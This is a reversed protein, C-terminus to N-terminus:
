EAEKLFSVESPAAPVGCNFIPATDTWFIQEPGLVRVADYGLRTLAASLSLARRGSKCYVVIPAHPDEPLVAAFESVRDHPVNVARLIHGTAYEEPSRADILTFEGQGALFSLLEQQEIAPVTVSSANSEPAQDDAHITSLCAFSLCVCLLTAAPRSGNSM